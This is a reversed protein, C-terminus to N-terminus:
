GGFGPIRLLEVGIFRLITVSFVIFLLGIIASTIYDKADETKKTDGASTAFIFGAAIIMLVATGGGVRLGLTILSTVLDETNTRICGVGTWIGPSENGDPGQQIEYCTECESQLGADSIQACLDFGTVIVPDVLVDEDAENKLDGEEGEELTDSIRVGTDCNSHDTYGLSLLSGVIGSEFGDEFQFRSPGFVVTYQGTDLINTYDPGDFTRSANWTDGDRQMPISFVNDIANGSKKLYVTPNSQIADDSLNSGVMQANVIFGDGNANKYAEVSPTGCSFDKNANYLVDFSTSCINQRNFSFRTNSQLTVSITREEISNDTFSDLMNEMIVTKLNVPETTNGSNDFNARIDLTTRDGFDYVYPAGGDVEMQLRVDSTSQVFNGDITANQISIGFVDDNLPNFNPQLSRM